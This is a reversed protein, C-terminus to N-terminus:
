DMIKELFSRIAPASLGYKGRLYAISGHPVFADPLGLAHLKADPLFHAAWAAFTDRLGGRMAGDETTVINKYSLLAKQLAADDWPKLFRLDIHGVHPLNHIAESVELGITGLSVVVTSNGSNLVSFSGATIQPTKEVGLVGGNRPYRIAVPTNQSLAYRLMGRLEAGNMPALIQLNPISNLYSLDFAGHHTAGDEGVLGARDLAIVVPLNQLAIDHIIQDFARQAFTSYLSLVPKLGSAALGAAFTAAHQEAIGVDFCRHPFKQQFFKLGSGSIMAPSIAVIGPNQGALDVLERGFVDSMNVESKSSEAAFPMNFKKTKLHIVRVGTRNKEEQFLHVLRLVDNGNHVGSYGWGLTEFFERYDQFEHLAGVNPDISSENDNLIVLIDADCAGLHNLAEFAMGGTLAGDGIVAVHKRHIGSLQAAMAFGGIASISTSSHGAGFPDFASEARTTFGSIGGPQRNTNMMKKRETLVKHVYAQHGVDWILVDTPTNFVYHLAVTIETATLSSRIHGEKEKTQELVFVKLEECLQPLKDASLIRLDKPHNIKELLM